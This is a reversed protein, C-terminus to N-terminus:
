IHILSLEQELEEYEFSRDYFHREDDKFILTVPIAGDWNEDVKPIWTNADDDALLVVQSQLARREIFPLVKTNMNEPFDLSVLVVKVNQDKYNAHLSEFAPLEKVCPKCWTAWFNVVYTTGDKRSLVEAELEDFSYMPVDPHHHGEHSATVTEESINAEQDSTEPKNDGCSVCVLLSLFTLLRLMKYLYEFHM